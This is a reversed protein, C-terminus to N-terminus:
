STQMVCNRVQLDLTTSNRSTLDVLSAQGFVKPPSCLRGLTPCYHMVLMHLGRGIDWPLAQSLNGM